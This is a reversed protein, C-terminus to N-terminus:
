FNCSSDAIGANQQNRRYFFSLIIKIILDLYSTNINRLIEGCLAVIFGAGASFNLTDTNKKNNENLM